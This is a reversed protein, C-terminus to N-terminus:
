TPLLTVPRNQTFSGAMNCYTETVSFLICAIHRVKFKRFQIGVRSIEPVTRERRPREISRGHRFGM